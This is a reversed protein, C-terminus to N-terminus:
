LHYEYLYIFHVLLANNSELSALYNPKDIGLYAFFGDKKSRVADIVDTLSVRAHYFKNYDICIILEETQKNYLLGYEFLSTETSADIGVYGATELLEALYVHKCCDEADFEDHHETECHEWLWPQECEYNLKEQTFAIPDLAHLVGGQCLTYGCITVEGYLEDLIDEFEQDTLEKQYAKMLGGGKRQM